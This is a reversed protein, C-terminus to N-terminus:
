INIKNAAPYKAPPKERPENKPPMATMSANYKSIPM